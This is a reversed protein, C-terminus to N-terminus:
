LEVLQCASQGQVSLSVSRELLGSLALACCLAHHQGSPHPRLRQGDAGDAHGAHVCCSILM